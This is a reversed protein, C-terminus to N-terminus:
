MDFISAIDRYSLIVKQNKFYFLNKKIKKPTMNPGSMFDLHVLAVLIDDFAARM